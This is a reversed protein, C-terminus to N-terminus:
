SQEAKSTAQKCTQNTNGIQSLDQEHQHPGEIGRGCSGRVGGGGFDPPGGTAQATTKTTTTLCFTAM